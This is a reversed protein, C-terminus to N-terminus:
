SSKSQLSSPTPVRYSKNQGHKQFLWTQQSAGQPHRAHNDVVKENAAHKENHQWRPCVACLPRATSHRGMSNHQRDACHGCEEKGNGKGMRRGVNEVPGPLTQKKKKSGNPSSECHCHRPHWFPSLSHHHCLHPNRNLQSQSTVQLLLEQYVIRPLLYNHLCCVYRDTKKISSEGTNLWRRM